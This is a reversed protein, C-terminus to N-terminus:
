LGMPARLGLAEALHTVEVADSGQLDALTRAVRRLAQIARGSLGRRRDASELLELQEPGLPSWRDLQDADLVANALRGQRRRRRELASRTRRLLEGERETAGPPSALETPSPAPLELRLEVRDLLPGSIRRRYRWVERESCRCTRLPHGRFGCPCPNMATVLQFRAPLEVHHGARALVVHGTELPQRLAELTERRFEPLEDLFLVGHHALTIEGATPPSGGGVLGAHSTTHHPARFPRTAVLRAQPRGSASLIATIELREATTPPPLLRVLSRALLSKGTGPPGMLLLGHGGTAAVALAHKATAQGRIEDLGPGDTAPGRDDPPRAPALDRGGAAWAVVDRLGPAELAEMGDALSAEAATEAPAVVRTLGRSRALVAAPLGGAVPRLTGAMSLEGLFLTGGLSEPALHGVAAAAGLALPLDLAEGRKRIGAPALHITLRGQPLHLRNEDLAALLRGRSERIVADPLGSVSVETRQRDLAEFRAEVTVLVAETGVLCMGHVRVTRM